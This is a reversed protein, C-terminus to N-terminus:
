PLANDIQEKFEKAIELPPLVIKLSGLFSNMAGFAKKIWYIITKLMPKSIADKAKGIVTDLFSIKLTLMSGSMGVQSLEDYEVSPLLKISDDISASVQPFIERLKSTYERYEEMVIVDLLKTQKRQITLIEKLFGKIMELSDKIKEKDDKNENHKDNM